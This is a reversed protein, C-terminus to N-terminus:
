TAGDIRLLENANASVVRRAAVAVLAGAAALLALTVGAILLVSPVVTVPAGAAFSSLDIRGEYLKVVAWGTTAGVVGGFMVVPLLETAVARRIERSGAGLLGLVAVERKRQRATVVVIATLAVLSIILALGAAVLYGARVARSLPDDREGALVSTRSVVEVGSRDAAAFLEAELGAPVDLYIRNFSL